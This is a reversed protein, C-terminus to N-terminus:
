VSFGSGEEAGLVMVTPGFIQFWAGKLSKGQVRCRFGQLRFGSERVELDMVGARTRLGKARCPGPLPDGAPEPEM